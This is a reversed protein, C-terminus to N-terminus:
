DFKQNKSWVYGTKGNKLEVKNVLYSDFSGRVKIDDSRSIIDDINYDESDYAKMSKTKFVRIKGAPLIEQLIDLLKM